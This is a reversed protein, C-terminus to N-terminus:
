PVSSGEEGDEDANIDEFRNSPFDCEIEWGERRVIWHCKDKFHRCDGCTKGDPLPPRYESV